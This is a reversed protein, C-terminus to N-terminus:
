SNLRCLAGRNRLVIRRSTPRAIAAKVELHSLTRSVTEITLGLYDAIDQRSMPLQIENGEPGRLAMEILFSALREEASKILLLAHDQVRRLERSTLTWLEKATQTDRAALSMLASRVLRVYRGRRESCSRM